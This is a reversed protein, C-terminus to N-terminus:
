MSQIAAVSFRFNEIHWISLALLRTLVFNTMLNPRLVYKNLQMKIYQKINKFTGAFDRAIFALLGYITILKMCDYKSHLSLM